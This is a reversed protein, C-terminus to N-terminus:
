NPPRVGNGCFDQRYKFADNSSQQVAGIEQRILGPGPGPQVHGHPDTYYVTTQWANNFYNPGTYIERRCGQYFADPSRPDVGTRGNPDGRYNQTYIVNGNNAPDRTLVPDFAAAAFSLTARTHMIDAYSDDPHHIQFTIGNWIEYPDRCGLTSFDRAGRRPADCTSGNQGTDGTDAMGYVRAFRGSGDRAVYDYEVSHFRETFRGVGSTGMHFVIRFDGTATLGDTVTGANVSFVKFGVHPENMGMLAAAYGFAPLTNDANSTRPDAGHEHGFFCGYRPDVPPHWTPYSRGDPGTVVYADHVLPPCLQGPIVAVESTTQTPAPTPPEPEPTSTPSPPVDAPTATPPVRTSTATPAVSTSTLSPPISSPM